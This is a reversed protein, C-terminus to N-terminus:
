PDFLPRVILNFDTDVSRIVEESLEDLHPIFNDHSEFLHIAYGQDLKTDRPQTTSFMADVPGKEWGPYCFNDWPLIKVLAPLRAAIKPGHM